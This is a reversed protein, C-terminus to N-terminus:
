PQLITHTYTLVANTIYAYSADVPQRRTIILYAQTYVIKIACCDRTPRCNRMISAERDCESGDCETPSRQVLSLGSASLESLV